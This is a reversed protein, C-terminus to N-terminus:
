ESYYKKIGFFNKKIRFLIPKCDILKIEYETDKQLKSRWNRGYLFECLYVPQSPINILNSKFKKKEIPYIYIKPVRLHKSPDNTGGEFNWKEIIYNEDVDDEYFYFDCIFKKNNDERRVQLFSDNKNVSLNLDVDLHNDRLIKILENRHKMNVYIDIDDDGEILKGERVLGLLTGFFVFHELKSLIQNFFLLNTFNEDASIKDINEKYSKEKKRFFM